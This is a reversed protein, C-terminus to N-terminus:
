AGDPTFGTADDAKDAAGDYLGSLSVDLKNLVFLAIAAMVVVIIGYEATTAGKEDRVFNRVATSIKSM